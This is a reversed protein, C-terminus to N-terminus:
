IGKIYRLLKIGQQFHIYNLILASKFYISLTPHSLIEKLSTNIHLNDTSVIPKGQLLITAKVGLKFFDIAQELLRAKCNEKEFFLQIQETLKIMGKQSQENIWTSTYSNINEKSYNYLPKNIYTISKAFYFLRYTVSLDELFNIGETCTIHHEKYLSKKILKNWVGGHMQGSLIAIVCDINNTLPIVHTHKIHTAYIENWDCVVIDSNTNKAQQYMQEYANSEVWDDSDCDIIYEGQAISRGTNRAAALGRNKEHNIIKIDSIRNPYRKLVNELLQISNDPTYDNIFIYEISKLTQEFLSIACREIYKETKYIPIIVSVQYM